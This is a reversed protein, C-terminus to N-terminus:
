RNASTSVSGAASPQALAGVLAMAEDAFVEPDALSGFMGARLLVTGFIGDGVLEVHPSDSGLVGGLLRLLRPRAEGMVAEEFAARLEPDEQAAAMFGLAGEGMAAMKTAMAVILNRLDVTPDGVEEVDPLPRDRMAAAVLKEKTDWRRYITALGCGAAKAIDGVKLDQWGNEYLVEHTADLIAATRAEDRPRGRSTSDEVTSTDSTVAEIM